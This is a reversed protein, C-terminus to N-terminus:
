WTDADSKPKEILMVYGACILGSVLYVGYNSLFMARSNWDRTGMRGAGYIMNLMYTSNIANLGLPVLVGVGYARLFGRHYIVLTVMFACMVLSLGRYLFFIMWESRINHAVYALMAILGFAVLNLVFLTIFPRNTPQGRDSKASEIFSKIQEWRYAAVVILGGLLGVFMGARHGFSGVAEITSNQSVNSLVIASMFMLALGVGFVVAGRRRWQPDFNMGSRPLSESPNSYDRDLPHVDNDYEDM